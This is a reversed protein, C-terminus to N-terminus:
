YISTECQQRRLILKGDVEALVTGIRVLGLDPKFIDPQSGGPELNLLPVIESKEAM